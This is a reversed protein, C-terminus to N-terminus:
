IPDAILNRLRSSLLLAVLTSIALIALVTNGYRRMRDYMEDLDYLFVLTGIRHNSLVIPRSLTIDHQSFLVREVAEPPPCKAATGPRAYSAFLSGNVRYICATLLHPRARLAALTEKAAAPDEFSLAATSNDATIGALGILDRELSGRFLIYDSILSGLTSITLAATTVGMIIVMLKQKIPIDRFARRRPQKVTSM